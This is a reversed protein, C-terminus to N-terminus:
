YHVNGVLKWCSSFFNIVRRCLFNDFSVLPRLITYVAYAPSQPATCSTSGLPLLCVLVDERIQLHLQTVPPSGIHRPAFSAFSHYAHLPHPSLPASYDCPTCDVVFLRCPILWHFIINLDFPSYIYYIIYIHNCLEM